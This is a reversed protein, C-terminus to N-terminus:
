GCYQSIQYKSTDASMVAERVELVRSPTVSLETIGANLFFETLSTDAGMEGCIGVWIGAKAACEATYSILRLVAEHAGKTIYSVEPNERDAALTYQILDNTGISFFDAHEALIDACVAAAPTEIMIGIKVNEDFPKGNARLQERAMACLEKAKIIEDASVIMPFMISVPTYASARYLARLQTLFAEENKMCLRIARLGLAPNAEKKLDLYDIKKDAGADLTRVILEKKGMKEGATRYADFQEDETPLRGYKMYLFESRFLGIGEADASAAYHVDDPEGINAYVRIRRGDKTETLKGRLSDLRCIREEQERKKGLLRERTEEDPEIYLAGEDGDLICYKGDLSSDIKGAAVVSPIGMTRALIASHSSDSGGETIFGLALKKDLNVTEGPTLENAAIVSPCDPSVVSRRGSLADTVRRAVDKVDAARGKMYDGSMDSFLKGLKEATQLVASVADAGQRIMSVISKDFDDDYLMMRHIDFIMAESEGADSAAKKRLEELESAARERAERYRELETEADDAKSYLAAGDRRVVYLKGEAIGGSAKKGCIKKIYIM